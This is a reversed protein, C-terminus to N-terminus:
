PLQLYQRSQICRHCCPPLLIQTDISWPTSLYLYQWNEGQALITTIISVEAVAHHHYYFGETVARHYYHFGEAVAHHHHYFAETVAHHYHYFEEAGAHHYYYELILLGPFSSIALKGGQSLITFIDILIPM